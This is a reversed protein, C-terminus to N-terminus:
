TTWLWTCALHVLALYNKAWQGDTLAHRHM